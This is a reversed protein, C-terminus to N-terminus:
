PACVKFRMFGVEGGRSGFSVVKRPAHCDDVVLAMVGSRWFYGNELSIKYALAVWGVRGDQGSKAMRM